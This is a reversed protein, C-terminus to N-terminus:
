SASRSKRAEREVREVRKFTSLSPPRIKHQKVLPNRAFEKCFLAHREALGLGLASTDFERLFARVLDRKEQRVREKRVSGVEGTLALTAAPPTIDIPKSRQAQRRVSSHSQTSLNRNAKAMTRDKAKTLAPETNV